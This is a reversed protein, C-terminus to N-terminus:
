LMKGIVSVALLALAIVVVPRVIKSGNRITLGAGVYHGAFSSISAILGLSWLVQGNLSATILAGIGSSLNVLKVNGSATRIDLKALNTFVLLLFTGTGPGYFGDYTGIILSSVLVIATRKKEDMPLREEPFSRQRLVVVAVIPLVILLLYELYQEPIALQLSTGCASGCLALAISPIALKWDVYGNKVYRGTSALSGISASVKNTGAAMHIPLGALIYTPLSILGGGGAIADLFSALFVGITAILIMSVTLEM